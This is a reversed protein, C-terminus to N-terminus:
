KKRRAGYAQGRASGRSGTGTQTFTFVRTPDGYHQYAAWVAGFKDTIRREYLKERALKVAEGLPKRELLSGYLETAFERAPLSPVEWATGIYDSIGRHFFEEALSAVLGPYKKQSSAAPNTSQAFRATVCANAVVLSPPREMGELERATLVGGKFVWGAREPVEPDFQAHGCYHVIDYYESLLIRVVDFYDAAPIKEKFLPGANTGDEPAGILLKTDVGKKKLLNYVHIAEEQAHQLSHNLAPDGPDGIVLAKLQQPTNMKDLRPSYPTRLQRALSRVVGLPKGDQEAPLMEWQVRALKADVEVVLSDKRWLIDKVDNHVLLRFLTDASEKIQDQMELPPDMLREVAREVLGLRDAIERETVTVTNTIAAAHIDQGIAWFAVRSPMDTPIESNRQGEDGERLRLCMALRRLREEGEGVKCEAKVQLLKSRAKDPIQGTAPLKELLHDLITTGDSGGEAEGADVLSALLLSCSFEPSVDGDSQQLLEPHVEMNLDDRKGLDTLVDLIEIARDLYREVIRLKKVQLYSDEKLAEAIGEVLTQAADKLRLNGIGAGILVTAITKREPLLGVARAISRALIKLQPRHFTGPRGMGAVGVLRDPDWPFFAIEGLEGRLLGRKTWERIIRKRGSGETDRSLAGDLAWEAKQPVVGMYHGVFHVDGEAKTIDGWVVEVALKPLPISSEREGEVSATTSHIEESATASATSKERWARSNNATARKRQTGRGKTVKGKM